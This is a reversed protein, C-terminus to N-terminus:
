TRRQAPQLAMTRTAAVLILSVVVASALCWACTAGIVFPELFTLYVSFVTGAFAAGWVGFAARSRLTPAGFQSLLWAGGMAAYGILGLVGVPLVGFLTAYSSQQVTNCDGVPGCVAAAGTVEVFSLYAAVASGTVLLAPIAWVPVRRAPTDPRRVQLVSWALVAVLGLLVLVALGNGVPDLMFRQRVTTPAAGGTLDLMAPEAPAGALSEVTSEGAPQATAPTVDPAAVADADATATDVRGARPEAVPEVDPTAAAAAAPPAVGPPPSAAAGPPPSAAAPAAPVSGPLPHLLGQRQLSTRLSGIDPWDIGGAALGAQVIGPLLQPIEYAGVLVQDGVVLAPVGFRDRPLRYTETMDQYLRGGEMTAANITIVQLQEGFRALIPPLHDDMVVHCHPCTPSYFLVARVESRQGAAPTVVAGALLLLAVVSAMCVVWKRMLM